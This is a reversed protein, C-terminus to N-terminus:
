TVPLCPLIRGWVFLCSLYVVRSAFLASRGPLCVLCLADWPLVAALFSSLGSILSRWLALAILLQAFLGPHRPPFRKGPSAPPPQKRPWIQLCVKDVPCCHLCLGCLAIIIQKSMICAQRGSLSASAREMLQYSFANRTQCRRVAPRWKMNLVGLM